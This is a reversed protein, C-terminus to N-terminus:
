ANNLYHRIEETDDYTYENLFEEVDDIIFLEKIVERLKDKNIILTEDYSYLAVENKIKEM